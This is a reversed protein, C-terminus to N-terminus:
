TYAAHDDPPPNAESLSADWPMIWFGLASFGRSGRLEIPDLGAAIAVKM